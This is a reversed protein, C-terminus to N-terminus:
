APGPHPVGPARAPGLRWVRVGTFQWREAAGTRADLLRAFNGAPDLDEPRSSVIWTGTAAAMAADLKV